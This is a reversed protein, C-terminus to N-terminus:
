RDEEEEEEEEEKREGRYCLLPQLQSLLEFAFCCCLDSPIAALILNNMALVGGPLEVSCM